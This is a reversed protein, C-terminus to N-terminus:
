REVDLGKRATASRRELFHQRTIVIGEEHQSFIFLIARLVRAPRESAVGINM